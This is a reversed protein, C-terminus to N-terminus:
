ASLAVRLRLEELTHIHCRYHRDYYHYGLVGLAVLAGGFGGAAIVPIGVLNLVWAKGLFDKLCFFVM